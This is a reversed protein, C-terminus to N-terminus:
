FISLGAATFFLGANLVLFWILKAKLAQKKTM